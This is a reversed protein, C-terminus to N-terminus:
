MPKRSATHLVQQVKEHEEKLQEEYLDVEFGYDVPKISIGNKGEDDTWVATVSCVHERHRVIEGVFHIGTYEM